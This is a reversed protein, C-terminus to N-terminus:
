PTTCQTRKRTLVRRSRKIVYSRRCRCCAHAVAIYPPSYLVRCLRMQDFLMFMYMYFSLLKSGVSFNRRRGILNRCRRWCNTIVASLRHMQWNRLVHRCRPKCVLLLARIYVHLRVHRENVRCYTHTMCFFM